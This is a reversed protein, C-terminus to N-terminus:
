LRFRADFSDALLARQRAREAPDVSPLGTVAAVDGVGVVATDAVPEAIGSADATETAVASAQADVAAAVPVTTASSDQRGACAAACALAGLVGVWRRRM